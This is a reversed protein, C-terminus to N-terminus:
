LGALDFEAYLAYHDSLFHRDNTLPDNALLHMMTAATTPLKHSLIRDYRCTFPYGKDHYHNRTSEWTFRCEEPRGLDIFADRFGLSAVNAEEANRM